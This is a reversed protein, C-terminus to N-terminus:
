QICWERVLWDLLRYVGILNRTLNRLLVPQGVGDRGGEHSADQGKATDENM